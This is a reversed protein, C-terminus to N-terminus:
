LRDGEESAAAAALMAQEYPEVTVAEGDYRILLRAPAGYLRGERVAVIEASPELIALYQPEQGMAGALGDAAVGQALVTVGPIARLEPYDETEGVDPHVRLFSNAIEAGCQCPGYHLVVRGREPCPYSGVQTGRYSVSGRYGMPVQLAVLARQDLADPEVLILRGERTRLVSAAPLTEPPYSREPAAPLTARFREGLPLMAYQRGRGQEGVAIHSFPSRCLEIGPTTITTVTYLKM